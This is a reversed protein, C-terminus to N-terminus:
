EEEGHEDYLCMENTCYKEGEETTAVEHLCYPCLEQGDPFEQLWAIAEEKSIIEIM